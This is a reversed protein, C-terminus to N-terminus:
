VESKNGSDPDRILRHMEAILQDLRRRLRADAPPQHVHLEIDPHLVYRQWTGGNKVLPQATEPPRAQESTASSQAGIHLAARPAPSSASAAPSAPEAKQAAAHRLLRPKGSPRLLARLYPRADESTPEPPEHRRDGEALLENVAEDDLGELLVRIEDLPLFEKKLLKILEL